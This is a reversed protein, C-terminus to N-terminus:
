APYASLFAEAVGVNRFLRTNWEAFAQQWVEAPLGERQAVAAMRTSGGPAADIAGCIEAYRQVTVGAVPEFDAATREGAGPLAYARQLGALSQEYSGVIEHADYALDRDLDHSPGGRRFWPM